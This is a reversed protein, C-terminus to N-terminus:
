ETDAFTQTQASEATETAESEAEATTEASTEASQTEPSEATQTEAAPSEATQTEVTEADTEASQTEATETTTEATQTEATQTETTEAPKPNFHRYIGFAAAAAIVAILIYSCIRILKRRKKQKAINEKRHAKEQKYRDVKEQSMIFAEEMAKKCPHYRGKFFLYVPFIHLNHTGDRM